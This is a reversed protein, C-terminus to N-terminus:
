TTAQLLLTADEKDLGIGDPTVCLAELVLCTQHVPDSPCPLM